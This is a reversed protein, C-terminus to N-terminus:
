ERKYAIVYEVYCHSNDYVVFERFRKARKGKELVLSHFRVGPSSGPVLALERMEPSHFINQDVSGMVKEGDDTHACWGLAARVVLCYFIFYRFCCFYCTAVAAGGGRMSPLLLLLDCFYCFYPLLTALPALLLPMAGRARYCFYCTVFTAFTASTALTALLLPLAWFSCTVDTTVFTMLRRLHKWSWTGGQGALTGGRDRGHGAGTGGTDRRTGGQGPWTGGGDRRTGGQGAECSLASFNWCLLCSVSPLCCLNAARPAKRAGVFARLLKWGWYPGTFSSAFKPEMATLPVSPDSVSKFCASGTGLPLPSGTALSVLAGSGCATRCSRSKM